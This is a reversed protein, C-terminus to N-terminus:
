DKRTHSEKIKRERWPRNSLVGAGQRKKEQSSCRQEALMTYILMTRLPNPEKRSLRTVDKRVYLTKYYSGVVKRASLALGLVCPGM